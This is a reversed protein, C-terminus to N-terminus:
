KKSREGIMKRRRNEKKKGDNEKEVTGGRRVLIKLKTRMCLYFSDTESELKPVPVVLFM